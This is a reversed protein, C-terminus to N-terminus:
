ESLLEKLEEIESELKRIDAKWDEEFEPDTKILERYDEIQLELHEILSKITNVSYGIYM